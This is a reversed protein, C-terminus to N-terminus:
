KVEEKLEIKSKKEKRKRKVLLYALIGALILIILSGTITFSNIASYDKVLKSSQVGSPTLSSKEASSDAQTLSPTPSLGPSVVSDPSATEGTTVSSTNTDTTTTTTSPNLSATVVVDPTKEVTPEVTPTVIIIPIDTSYGYTRFQFDNDPYSTYQDWYASGRSYPNGSGYYWQTDSMSADLWIRYRGDITVDIDAFDFTNWGDTVVKDNMYTVPDWDSGNYKSVGLNVTGATNTLNVSVKDLKPKTPRFSQLTLPHSKIALSADGSKSYEQDIASAAMAKPALVLFSTLVIVLSLFLNHIKKM